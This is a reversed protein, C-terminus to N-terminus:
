LPKNGMDMIVMDMDVAMTDETDETTDPIDTDTDVMIDAMGPKLM